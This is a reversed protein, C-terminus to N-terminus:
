PAAVKLWDLVPRTLESCWFQGPDSELLTLARRFFRIQLEREAVPPHVYGFDYHSHHLILIKKIM